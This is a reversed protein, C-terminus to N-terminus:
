KTGYTPGEGEYGGFGVFQILNLDPVIAEAITTAPSCGVPEILLLTDIEDLRITELVFVAVVKTGM